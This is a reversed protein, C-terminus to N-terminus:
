RAYSNFALMFGIVFGVALLLVPIATWITMVVVSRRLWVICWVVLASDHATVAEQACRSARLVCWGPLCLLASVPLGVLLIGFVMGFFYPFDADPRKHLEVVVMAITVSVLWVGVSAVVLAGCIWSWRRLGGIAATIRPDDMPGEHIREVNSASM